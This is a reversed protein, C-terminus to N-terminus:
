STVAGNQHASPISQVRSGMHESSSGIFRSLEDSDSSNPRDKAFVPKYLLMRSGGIFRIEKM